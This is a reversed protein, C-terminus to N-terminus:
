TGTAGTSGTSGTNGTSGTAGTAGTSGTAGTAGTSGTAGTAGTCGTPGRGHGGFPGGGRPSFPPYDHGHRSRGYGFPGISGTAGTAGSAGTAGHDAALDALVQGAATNVPVLAAAVAQNYAHEAARNAKRAAKRAAICAASPGSSGTAGTAGTAGTSGTPQCAAKVSQHDSRLAAFLTTRASKVAGNSASEASALNSCDTTLQTLQATTLGALRGTSTHGKALQRCVNDATTLTRRPGRTPGHASAVAGAGIALV